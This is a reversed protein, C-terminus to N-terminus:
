NDCRCDIHMHTCITLILMIVSTVMLIDLMINIISHINGEETNGTKEDKTDDCNAKRFFIYILLSFVFIIFHFIFCSFRFWKPSIPFNSKYRIRFGGYIAFSICIGFLFWFVTTINSREDVDITCLYNKSSDDTKVFYVYFTIM